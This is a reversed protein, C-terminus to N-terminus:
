FKGSVSFLKRRLVLLNTSGECQDSNDHVSFFLFM